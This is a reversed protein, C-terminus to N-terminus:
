RQLKVVMKKAVSVWVRILRPIESATQYNNTWRKFKQESFSMSCLLIDGDYRCMELEFKKGKFRKEERNTEAGRGIEVLHDFVSRKIREIQVDNLKVKEGRVWDDFNWFDRYLTEGARILTVKIEHEAM